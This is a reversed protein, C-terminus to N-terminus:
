HGGGLRAIKLIEQSKALRACIRRRRQQEELWGGHAPAAQHGRRECPVVPEGTLTTGTLSRCRASSWPLAPTSASMSPRSCIAGSSTTGRPWADTTSSSCDAQVRGPKHQRGGERSKFLRRQLQAGDMGGPLPWRIGAGRGKYDLGVRQKGLASRRASGARRCRQMWKLRLVEEVKRISLRERFM